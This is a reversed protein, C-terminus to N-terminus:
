QQFCREKTWVQISVGTAARVREGLHPFLSSSISFFCVFTSALRPAAVSYTCVAPRSPVSPGFLSKANECSSSEFSAHYKWVCVCSPTICLLRRSVTFLACVCIFIRAIIQRVASTEIETNAQKTVLFVSFLRSSPHLALLGALLRSILDPFCSFSM